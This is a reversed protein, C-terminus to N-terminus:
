RGAGALLEKMPIREFVLDARSGEYVIGIHEDDVRSISPYGRGRGEDLLLHLKDPWSRGDDLSVQITHHTRGKQNRPNAFLLVP